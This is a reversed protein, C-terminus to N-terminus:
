KITVVDYNVDKLRKWLEALQKLPTTELEERVNGSDVMTPRTTWNNPQTYMQEVALVDYNTASIGETALTISLRDGVLINSNGTLLMTIQTPADKLQYLMTESRKQCEADSHLKDDTVELDRRGYSTQSTGDSATDSWRDPFLYLGDIWVYCANGNFDAYVELGQIDWWTPSGSKYWQGDDNNDADYVNNPGLALNIQRWNSDGVGTSFTYYFYNTNNPAYLQLEPGADFGQVSHKRWFSLEDLTRITLTTISRHFQIKDYAAGSYGRLSNAGVQKDGADDALSDGDDLTWDGSSTETWSDYDSPQPKEAIGYVTINNKVKDVLKVVSYSLINTGETLTEVGATRIPRVKWVLDGDLDVWFDKKIQVGASVWYDSIWQLLDFYRKTRVELTVASADATIDGTGLSLDNAWETVITSAGIADYFKNEKFRRLLIEGQSLGSITKIYQNNVAYNTINCVKGIFNPNATVADEELFIRVTDNLAIDDYETSTGKKAPLSFNFHGIGSTLIEKFYISLAEDTITHDLVAGTKTEIKYDVKV